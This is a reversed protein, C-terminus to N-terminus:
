YLLEGPNEAPKERRERIRRIIEKKQATEATPNRVFNQKSNRDELNRSSEDERCGEPENAAAFDYRYIFILHPSHLLRYLRLATAMWRTTRIFEEAAIRKQGRM